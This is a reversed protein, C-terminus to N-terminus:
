NWSALLAHQPSVFTSQALSAPNCGVLASYAPGGNIGPNPHLADVSANRQFHITASTFSSYLRPNIIRQRLARYPYTPPVRRTASRSARPYAKFYVSAMSASVISTFLWQPTAKIVHWIFSIAEISLTMMWVKAQVRRPSLRRNGICRLLQVLLLPRTQSKTMVLNSTDHSVYLSVREM